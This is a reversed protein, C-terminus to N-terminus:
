WKGIRTHRLRGAPLFAGGQKVPRSSPRRRGSHRLLGRARQATREARGPSTAEKAGCGAVLHLGGLRGGRPGRGRGGRRVELGGRGGGGRRGANRGRTSPNSSRRVGDPPRS